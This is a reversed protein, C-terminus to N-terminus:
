PSEDPSRHCYFLRSSTSPDPRDLSSSANQTRHRIPAAAALVAGAAVRGSCGLPGHVGAWAHRDIPQQMSRQERSERVRARARQGVLPQLFKQSLRSQCLKKVRLSRDLICRRDRCADSREIPERRAHGARSAGLCCGAATCGACILAGCETSACCCEAPGSQAGSCYLTRV